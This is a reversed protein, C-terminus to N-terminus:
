KWDVIKGKFVKIKSEFHGTGKLIRKILGSFGFAVINNLSMRKRDIGWSYQNVDSGLLDMNLNADVIYPMIAKLRIGMHKYLRWDDSVNFPRKVSLIKKAAARNILYAYAGIACYADVIPRRKFYWFDGSILLVTPTEVSLINDLDIDSLVNIDRIFQIDDEFILAYNDDSDVLTRYCKRHSLVCGIEGSNLERGYRKLCNSDDFFENKKERSLERGNIASIFHFDLFSYPKLLDNMYRRRTESSPLNIIYTKIKDM